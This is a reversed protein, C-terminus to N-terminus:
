NSIGIRLGSISRSQNLPTHKASSNILISIYIVDERILCYSLVDNDNYRFYKKDDNLTLVEEGINDSVFLVSVRTKHFRNACTVKKYEKHVSELFPNNVLKMLSRPFIETDM